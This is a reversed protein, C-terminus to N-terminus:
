LKNYLELLNLRWVEDTLIRMQLGSLSPMLTAFLANDSLHLKCIILQDRRGVEGALEEWMAQLVDHDVVNHISHFSTIEEIKDLVRLNWHVKVIDNVTASAYVFYAYRVFKPSLFMRKADYM